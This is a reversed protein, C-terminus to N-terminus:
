GCDGIDIYEATKQSIDLKAVAQHEHDLELIPIEREPKKPENLFQKKLEVACDRLTGGKRTQLFNIVSGKDDGKPNFYLNKKTDVIFSEGRLEKGKTTYPINLYDLVDAFPIKQSIENFNLFEAM